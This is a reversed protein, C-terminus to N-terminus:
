KTPSMGFLGAPRFLLVVIMLAYTLFLAANPIYAKGFTEIEGVLLSGFFAGRLTGMGGIVVVIFAPIIIESDMGFYVGIIPGAAVGGLAALGVGFAFVGTFLAGVDIGLFRAMDANDVAARVKAGLATREIGIWLALALALGFAITFLRYVPFTGVWLPINDRLLAPAPLNFTDTGFGIRVVDAFIFTLGFTLLVQDLHGRAYLRHLLTREFVAGLAGVVVPAVLLALWFSDLKRYIVLGIFAGLMYFSGHALNAVNMLGFILSLGAALLFLLMSYVLGQLLQILLLDM